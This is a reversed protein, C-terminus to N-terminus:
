LKSRTPQAPLTCHQCQQLLRAAAPLLDQLAISSPVNDESQLAERAVVQQCLISMLWHTQALWASVPQFCSSLSVCRTLHLMNYTSPLHAQLCSRLMAGEVALAVAM